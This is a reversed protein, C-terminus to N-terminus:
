VGDIGNINWRKCSNWKDVHMLPIFQICDESVRHFLGGKGMILRLIAQQFDNTRKRVFTSM